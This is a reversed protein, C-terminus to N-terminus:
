TSERLALFVAFRGADPGDRRHSWFREDRITCLGAVEVHEPAVGADRLQRRNAEWLDFTLRGDREHFCGDADALRTRALRRVLEGVEYADPGASPAIATHLHSPDSGFVRAMQRVLNEAARAVTGQWGAHVAGIAPRDPDYACVIPCDASLLVIPVGPRELLLGDIYPLASDRGDRGRGVDAAELPLVEAGMVQQPATLRDFPVDLVDCVRQRWHVARERDRGRHPAFNQPRTTIAHVLPSQESLREFRLLTLDGHKAEIM